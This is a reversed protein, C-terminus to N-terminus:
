SWYCIENLIIENSCKSFM